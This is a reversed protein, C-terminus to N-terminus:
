VIDEGQNRLPEASGGGIAQPTSGSPSLRQVKQYEVVQRCMDVFVEHSMDGKARNAAWAVWQVNGKVYGLNSDIQDLSLCTIAKKEVKMPVGTLACRGKQKKFLEYLYDRDIDPMPGGYKKARVKACVLRHSIASVTLRDELPINKLKGTGQYSPNQKRWERAYEAKCPRCRNEKAPVNKRLTSYANRGHSPFESSPKPQKCVACTITNM